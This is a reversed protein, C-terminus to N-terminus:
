GGGKRRGWYPVTTEQEWAGSVGDFPQWRRACFQGGNRRMAEPPAMAVLCNEEGNWAHGRMWPSVDSTKWKRNTLASIVLLPAKIRFRGRRRQQWKKKICKIQMFAGWVGGGVVVVVVVM